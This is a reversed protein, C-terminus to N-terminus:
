VILRRAGPGAPHGTGDLTLPRAVDEPVCGRWSVSASLGPGETMPSWRVGSYTGPEFRTGAPPELEVTDVRDAGFQRGLRGTRSRGAAVGEQM